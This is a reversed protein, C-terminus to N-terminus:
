PRPPASPIRQETGSKLFKTWQSPTRQDSDFIKVVVETWQSRRSREANKISCTALHVIYYPYARVAIILGQKSISPATGEHALGVNAHISLTVAVVHDASPYIYRLSFYRDGIFGVRSSKFQTSLTALRELILKAVGGFSPPSSAAPLAQILAMGDVM